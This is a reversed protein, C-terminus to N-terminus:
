GQTLLRHRRKTNNTNEQLFDSSSPHHRGVVSEMEGSIYNFFKERFTHRSFCKNVFLFSLALCFQIIIEFSCDSSYALGQLKSYFARRVISCLKMYFKHKCIDKLYPKGNNYFYSLLLM